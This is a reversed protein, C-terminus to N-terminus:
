QMDAWGSLTLESKRKKKKNLMVYNEREWHCFSWSEMYLGQTHHLEGCHDAIPRCSYWRSPLAHDAQWDGSSGKRQGWETAASLAGIAALPVRVGTRGSSLFFFVKLKVFITRHHIWIISLITRHHIWIISLITRHHIWIISLITRHHIWIICKVRTQSTIQCRKTWTRCFRLFYVFCSLIDVPFTWLELKTKVRFFTGKYKSFVFGAVDDPIPEMEFEVNIVEEFKNLKTLGKESNPNRWGTCYLLFTHWTITVKLLWTDLIVIMWPPNSYDQFM